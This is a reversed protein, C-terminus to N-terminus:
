VKACELLGVLIKSTADARHDWSHGMEIARRGNEGMTRCIETSNSLTRVARALEEPNSAPVVMGCDHSRVLDAQGPFDTVVVPVGCAMAEFVKLPYLGTNSRGLLNNQPSIAAVCNSLVGAVDAYPIRGLFRIVSANRIAFKEVKSREAGDGVVVLRVGRPWSSSSTANLLTEIGQWRALAGVFVVYPKELPYKLLAMPHFIQPNAGNPVVYINMKPFVTRLMDALQPTVAILAHAQSHSLRWLFTLVPKFRKTWGYALFVDELPGNVEQVVPLGLLRAMLISPLLAVHSRVYLVQTRKGSLCFRCQVIIFDFLRRLLHVRGSCDQHNPEYLKADWGRARLGRLIEHVHAHSAQGECTTQLCLYSVTHKKHLNM